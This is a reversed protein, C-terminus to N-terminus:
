SNKLKGNNMRRLILQNFRFEFVRQLVDVYFWFWLFLGCLFSTSAIAFVFRSSGFNSFFAFGNM